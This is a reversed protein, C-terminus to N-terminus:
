DENYDPPKAWHLKQKLIQFFTSHPPKLRLFPFRYKRIWIRHNHTVERSIQGDITLVGQVKRGDLRLEVQTKSPIVLPRNNLTHPCIPNLLLADMEQVVIPGGASLSYATSGIPTSLIVGDGHYTTIYEENLYCQVPIIRCIGGFSIVVDNIAPSRFVEREEEMLVVEITLCRSLRFYALYDEGVTKELEEPSIETLFGLRGRNVGLLPIRKPCLLRGAFLTTGDGGFLIALDASVKDMRHPLSFIDEVHINYYPELLSSFKDLNTLIDPKSSDGLLLLTDKM